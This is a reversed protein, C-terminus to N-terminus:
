SRKSDISLRPKFTLGFLHNTKESFVLLLNLSRELSKRYNPIPYDTIAKIKQLPPRVANGDIIHGLFEISSKAFECKSLKLRANNESLRKFVENLLRNHETSNKAYLIIDDLYSMVGKNILDGLIKRVVRHFTSPSNKLGFPLVLWEFHGDKTVFATKYIDEAHVPVQWYGSAFDLKSFITSGQLRDILDAILPLPTKDAVTKQNLKRYDICLRKTGDKKDALTIPAAFPSSSERILGKELLDKVQRATEEADSISQRYPRM